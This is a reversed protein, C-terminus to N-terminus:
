NKFQSNQNQLKPTSKVCGGERRGVISATVLLRYSILFFYIKFKNYQDVKWHCLNLFLIYLPMCIIQLAKSSFDSVFLNWVGYLYRSTILVLPGLPPFSFNDLGVTCFAGKRNLLWPIQSSLEAASDVVYDILSPFGTILDM